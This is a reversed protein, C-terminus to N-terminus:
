HNNLCSTCVYVRKKEHYAADCEAHAWTYCKTCSVWIEGRTNNSYRDNCFQCEADCDSDSDIHPGSDADSTSDADSSFDSDSSSDSAIFKTTSKRKRSKLASAAKNTNNKKKSNKIPKSKQQANNAKAAQKALNAKKKKESEELLLKHPSSNILCAKGRRASPAAPPIIPVSRIKAPSIFSPTPASSASPTSTMPVRSTSPTPLLPISSQASSPVSNSSVNLSEDTTTVSTDNTSSSVNVPAVASTSNDAPSKKKVVFAHEPFINDNYPIVGAARFGNKAIIMTASQEYAESFLSGVQRDTVACGPNSDMWNEIAKSYYHKFPKMFSLDLPQMKHSCHPPLCVLSVHNDRALNVIDINRTHSYHGDFILLVPDSETPHTFDIFSQFWKTFLETSIWGSSSFEVMTDAPFNDKLGNKNNKRPFIVMPPVYLGGSSMCMVVTILAGREM